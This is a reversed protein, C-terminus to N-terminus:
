ETRSTPDLYTQRKFCSGKRIADELRRFRSRTSYLVVDKGTFCMSLENEVAMRTRCSEFHLISCPHTVEPIEQPNVTIM